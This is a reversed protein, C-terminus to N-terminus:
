RYTGKAERIATERRDHWHELSANVIHQPVGAEVAAAAIDKISEELAASQDALRSRALAIKGAEVGATAIFVGSAASMKAEFEDITM